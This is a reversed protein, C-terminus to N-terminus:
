NAGPKLWPMLVEAKGSLEWEVGARLVKLSVTQGFKMNGAKRFVRRLDSEERLPVNFAEVIVDGGLLVPQGDIVADIQGSVLGLRAAPSDKAVQQVLIGIWGKRLNFAEAISGALVVYTMGSWIPNRDLLTGRATNSAIAFGLGSSGGSKSVIYSVIGIVEGSMNFLPGGSNGPNIAADTQLIEIKEMGSISSESRLASIHGVTLSHGVGLPAGVVFAQNAVKVKDSDGLKAIVAGKPPKTDLQILAVDALPSSGLVRAALVEGSAFEVVVKDATQVVHAATLIRGDESILVGSGVGQEAVPRGDIGILGTQGEFYITVVSMHVRDYVEELSPAQAQLNASVGEAMGSETAACAALPAVLLLQLCTQTLM